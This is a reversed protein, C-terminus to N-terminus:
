SKTHYVFQCQEQEPGNQSDSTQQTVMHINLNKNRNRHITLHPNENQNYQVQLCSQYFIKVINFRDIWPSDIQGDMKTTDKKLPKFNENNLVKEKM